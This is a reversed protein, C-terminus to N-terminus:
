TSPWLTARSAFNGRNAPRAGRSASLSVHEHVVDRGPRPAGLVAPAVRLDGRDREGGEGSARREHEAVALALDVEDGDPGRGGRLWSSTEVLHLELTLDLASEGTSDDVDCALAVASAMLAVTLLSLRSTFSMHERRSTRIHEVRRASSSCWPPMSPEGPAQALSSGHFLPPIAASKEPGRRCRVPAPLFAGPAAGPPGPTQRTSSARASGSAARRLGILHACSTVRM